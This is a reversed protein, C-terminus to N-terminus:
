VRKVLKGAKAFALDRLLTFYLFPSTTLHRMCTLQRESIRGSAPTENTSKPTQHIRSSRSSSVLWQHPGRSRIILGTRCIIVITFTNVTQNTNTEEHPEITKALHSHLTGPHHLILQHVDNILVADADAFLLLGRPSSARARAPHDGLLSHQITILPDRGDHRMRKAPGSEIRRQERFWQINRYEWIRKLDWVGWWFIYHMSCGGSAAKRSAQDLLGKEKAIAQGPSCTRSAGTGRTQITQHDPHLFYPSDLPHRAQSPQVTSKPRDGATEKADDEETDSSANDLSKRRRVPAVTSGAVGSEFKASAPGGSGNGVVPSPLEPAVSPTPRLNATSVSRVVALRGQVRVRHRRKKTPILQDSEPDPEGADDQSYRHQNSFPLM